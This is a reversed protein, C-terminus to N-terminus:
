EGARKSQDRKAPRAKKRKRASRRTGASAVGGAPGIYGLGTALFGGDVYLTQGTTYTSTALFWAAEAIEEPAGFRGLPIRELYHRRIDTRARDGSMGRSRVDVVGPGVANVLIGHSALEVALCEVLSAQAAKTVCYLPEGAWAQRASVSTVVVIHGRRMPLMRRAAHQAALLTGRVNVAHLRDFDAASADLIHGNAGVAAALVIADPPRARFRADAAHFAAELAAVDALDVEITSVRAAARGSLRLPARDLNVVQAGGALFRRVISRGIGGSGGTV